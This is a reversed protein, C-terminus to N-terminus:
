RGFQRGSDGGIAGKQKVQNIGPPPHDKVYSACIVRKWLALIQFIACTGATCSLPETSVWQEHELLRRRM